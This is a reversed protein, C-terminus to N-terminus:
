VICLYFAWEIYLVSQHTKIYCFINVYKAESEM